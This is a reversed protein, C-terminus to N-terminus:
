QESIEEELPSWQEAITLDREANAIDGQKLQRALSSPLHKGSSESTERESAQPVFSGDRSKMRLLPLLIERWNEISGHVGNIELSDVGYYIEVSQDCCGCRLLYRPSKWGTGHRQAARHSLRIDCQGEPRMVGTRPQTKLPPKLTWKTKRKPTM